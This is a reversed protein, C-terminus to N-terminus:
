DTRWKMLTVTSPMSSGSLPTCCSYAAMPVAAPASSMRPKRGMSGRARIPPSARGSPSTARVTRATFLACPKESVFFKYKLLDKAEPRKDPDVVLMERLVAAFADRVQRLHYLPPLDLRLHHMRLHM